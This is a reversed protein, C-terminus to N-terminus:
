AGLRFRDTEVSGRGSSGRWPLPLLLGSPWRDHLQDEAYRALRASAGAPSGTSGTGLRVGTGSGDAARLLTDFNARDGKRLKPPTKPCQLDGPHNTTRDWPQHGGVTLATDGRVRRKRRAPAQRHGGFRGNRTWHDNPLLMILGAGYSPSAFLDGSRALREGLNAYNDAPSDDENWNLEGDELTGDSEHPTEPTTSPKPM